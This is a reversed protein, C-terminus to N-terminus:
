LPIIIRLFTMGRAGSGMLNCGGGPRMGPGLAALSVRFRYGVTIISKPNAGGLDAKASKPMM